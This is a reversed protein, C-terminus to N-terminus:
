THGGDERASHAALWALLGRLTGIALRAASSQKPVFLSCDPM